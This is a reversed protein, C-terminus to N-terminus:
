EYALHHAVPDLDPSRDVLVSTQLGPSTCGMRWGPQIRPVAAPVSIHYVVKESRRFNRIRHQSELVGALLGGKSTHHCALGFVETALSGRDGGPCQLRGLHRHRGLIRGLITVHLVFDSLLSTSTRSKGHRTIISRM